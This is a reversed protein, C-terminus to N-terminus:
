GKIDQLFELDLIIKDDKYAYLIAPKFSEDRVVHVKSDAKNLFYELLDQVKNFHIINETVNISKFTPISKGEVLDSTLDTPFFLKM